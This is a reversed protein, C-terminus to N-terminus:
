VAEIHAPVDVGAADRVHLVGDEDVDISVTLETIAAEHKRKPTPPATRQAKASNTPQHRVVVGTGSIGTNLVAGRVGFSISVDRPGASLGLGSKSINLRVGPALKISKGFRLSM